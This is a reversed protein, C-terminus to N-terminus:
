VHEYEFVGKQKLACREQPNHNTHGWTAGQM